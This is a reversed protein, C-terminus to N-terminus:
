VPAAGPHNRFSTTPGIWLLGATGTTGHRHKDVILEALGRISQDEPTYVEQRHVFTVQDADQEIAGSEALDALTPRPDARRTSERNIQSLAVIPLGLTGALAKLRRSILAVEQRRDRVGATVLQLYDVVLLALDPRVAQLRRARGELAQLTLDPTDDIQIPAAAIRRAAAFLEKWQRASCHGARVYRTPVDAEATLLRLGLEPRRMELSFIGVARGQVVALHRALDLALSTKGMGPRGAIIYLCGPLLTPGLRDYDPFGTALGQLDSARGEEVVRLIEDVAAGASTWRAPVAGALLAQADRSLAALLGDAPAATEAAATISQRAMAILDRRVARERVIEVYEATRGLDPLDLDLTALYALGGCDNWTRAQEMHAQLTRPDPTSGADAVALMASYLAAHREQWFHRPELRTRVGALLSPDLLLAGLVARESEESHPLTRAAM